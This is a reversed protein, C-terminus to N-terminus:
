TNCSTNCTEINDKPGIEQPMSAAREKCNHKKLREKIVKLDSSGFPEGCNLCQTETYSDWEDLYKGVYFDRVVGDICKLKM